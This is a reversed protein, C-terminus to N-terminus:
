KTAEAATLAATLAQWHKPAGFWPSNNVSVKWPSDDIWNQQHPIIQVAWGQEGAVEVLAGLREAEPLPLWGPCDAPCVLVGQKALYEEVHSPSRSRHCPCQCPERLGEHREALTLYQAEYDVPQRPTYKDPHEVCGVPCLGEHSM